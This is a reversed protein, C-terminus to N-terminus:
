ILPEFSTPDSIIEAFAKLWVPDTNLSPLFEYVEGGQSLFLHRNEMNVEELTELCDTVFAPCLILIKKIGQQSATKLFDDTYPKIWEARGLRSQFTTKIKLKKPLQKTLNRLETLIGETTFFCQSRYCNKQANEKKACCSDSLECHNNKRLQSAPLGHYSFVIADYQSLDKTAIKQAWASLFLQHNYFPKLVFKKCTTMKKSIKQFYNTASDTTSEAYQPFMPLLYVEDGVKIQELSGRLNPEQYRMGLIFQHGPLSEKLEDALKQSLHVLPSGEALWVKEYKKASEPARFPAIIINVLIWRIIWPIQIVLPDMLFERLYRRVDAVKTSQPSGINSLIM